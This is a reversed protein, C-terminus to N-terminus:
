QTSQNAVDQKQIKMETKCHPCFVVACNQADMCAEPPLELQYPQPGDYPCAEQACYYIM